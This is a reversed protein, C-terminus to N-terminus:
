KGIVFDENEILQVEKFYMKRTNTCYLSLSLLGNRKINVRARFQIKGAALQPLGKIYLDVNESDWSDEYSKEIRFMMIGDDCFEANM